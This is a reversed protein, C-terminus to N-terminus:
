RGNGEDYIAIIIIKEQNFEGFFLVCGRLLM